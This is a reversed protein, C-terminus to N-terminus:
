QFILPYRFGHSDNLRSRAETPLRPQMGQKTERYGDVPKTTMSSPTVDPKIGTRKKKMKSKEWGDVSISLSREDGQVGSSNSIRVADKDKDMTGPPKSPVSSRM